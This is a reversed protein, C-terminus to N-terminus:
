MRAGHLGSKLRTRLDHRIEYAQEAVRVISTDIKEVFLAERNNELRHVAGVFPLAIQSHGASHFPQGNVVGQSAVNAYVFALGNEFARAVCCSDIFKRVSDPAFRLGPGADELCWWSVNFVIEAGQRAYLRFLEPFALDWCISLGVKGYRTQFARATRGPTVYTREPLWLNIKSYSGLIKGKSDIYYSTNFTEGKKMEVVSGAVIDIRYQRAVQCITKVLRGEQDILDPRVRVSGTLFHEPFVIVQAKAQKAQDVFRVIKKLNKEVQHVETAFQAVAIRVKM